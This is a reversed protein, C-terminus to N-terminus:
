PALAARAREVIRDLRRVHSGPWYVRGCQSCRKFERYVLFVQLPVSRAAEARGIPELEGNCQMCRTYPRINGGLDLARM